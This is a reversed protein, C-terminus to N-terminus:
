DIFKNKFAFLGTQIQTLFDRAEATAKQDVKVNSTEAIYFVDDKSLYHAYDFIRGDDSKISLPKKLKATFTIIDGFKVSSGQTSDRVLINSAGQAPGSNIEVIYRLLTKKDEPETIIKGTISIEKSDTNSALLGDLYQDQFKAHKYRYFIACFM